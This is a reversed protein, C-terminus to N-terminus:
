FENCERCDCNKMQDRKSRKSDIEKIIIKEIVDKNTIIDKDIIDKNTGIDKDIIDKSTVINKDIIDEDIVDKSTVINKDIINEDIVDNKTVANKDIIDKNTVVNKDIIDKDIINSLQKSKSKRSTVFSTFLDKLENDFLIYVIQSQANSFQSFKMSEDKRKFFSEFDDIKYKEFLNESLLRKM